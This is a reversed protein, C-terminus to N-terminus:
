YPKEPKHPANRQFRAVAVCLIVSFIGGAFIYLPTFYPAAEGRIFQLPITSGYGNSSFYYGILYIAARECVVTALSVALVLRASYARLRALLGYTVYPITVMFAGIFTGSLDWDHDFPISFLLGFWAFAIWLSLFYAITTVFIGEIIRKM